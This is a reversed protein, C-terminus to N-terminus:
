PVNSFQVKRNLNIEKRWCRVFWLNLMHMILQRDEDIFEINSSDPHTEIDIPISGIGILLWVSLFLLGSVIQM